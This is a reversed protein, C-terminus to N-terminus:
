ANAKMCLRETTLMLPALVTLVTLDTLHSHRQARPDHGGAARECDVVTRARAALHQSGAATGTPTLGLSMFSM